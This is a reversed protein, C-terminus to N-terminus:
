RAAGSGALRTRCSSDGRLRVHVTLRVRGPDRRDPRVASQSTIDLLLQLRRLVAQCEAPTGHLCVDM